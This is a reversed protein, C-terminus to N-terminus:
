FILEIDVCSCKLLSALSYLITWRRALKRRLNSSMFNVSIPNVTWIRWIFLYLFSNYAHYRDSYVSRMHVTYPLLWYALVAGYWGVNFPNASCAKCVRLVLNFFIVTPLRSSLSVWKRNWYLIRVCLQIIIIISQLINAVM